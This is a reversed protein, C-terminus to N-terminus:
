MESVSAEHIWSLLDDFPYRSSAKPNSSQFDDMGDPGRSWVIVNARIRAGNPSGESQDVYGDYNEDLRIQLLRDGIKIGDSGAQNVDTVLSSNRLSRNGWADLLGFRDLGLGADPAYDIAHKNRLEICVDRTMMRDKLMVEHWEGETTHYSNLATHANTVIARSDVGFAIRKVHVVTIVMTGSLIGIIGIVVLMEVLTFGYNRCKELKM